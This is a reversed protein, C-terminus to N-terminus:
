AKGPLRSSIATLSPRKLTSNRWGPMSRGMFAASSESPVSRNRKSVAAKSVGRGGSSM